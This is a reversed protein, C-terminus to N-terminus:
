RQGRASFSAGRGQELRHCPRGRCYSVAFTSISPYQSPAFWRTRVTVPQARWPASARLSESGVRWGVASNRLAHRGSVEGPEEPVPGPGDLLFVALVTLAVGGVAVGAYWWRWPRFRRGPSRSQARAGCVGCFRASRALDRGCEGCVEASM